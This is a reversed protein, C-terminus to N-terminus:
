SRPLLNMKCNLFQSAFIVYFSPPVNLFDFNKFSGGGGSFNRTAGRTVAYVVFYIPYEDIFVYGDLTNFKSLVFVVLFSSLMSRTPDVYILRM